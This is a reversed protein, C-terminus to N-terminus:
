CVEVVKVKVAVPLRWGHPERKLDTRKKIYGYNKEIWARCEARTRFPALPQGRDWLMLHESRGDLQSQSRWKAAWM